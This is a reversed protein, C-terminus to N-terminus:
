RETGVALWTSYLAEAITAIMFSPQGGSAAHLLAAVLPPAGGGGGMRQALLRVEESASGERAASCASQCYTALAECAGRHSSGAAAQALPLLQALAAADLAAPLDAACAAALQLASEQWDPDLRHSSCATTLSASVAALAAGHGVAGQGVAPLLERLAALVAPHAPAPACMSELLAWAMGPEPVAVAARCAAQLLLAPSGTRSAQHLLEGVAALAEADLASGRQELAVSLCGLHHAAAEAEAPGCASGLLLSAQGVHLQLLERELRLECLARLCYDPASLEGGEASPQRGQGAYVRLLRQPWTPSHALLFGRIHSSGSLRHVCTAACRALKDDPQALLGLLSDLVAVLTAPLPSGGGGGGGRGPHVGEAHSAAALLQSGIGGLLVVLTGALKPCAALQPSTMFELCLEATHGVAQADLLGWHKPLVLNLAYLCAEARMWAEAPEGAARWHALAETAAQGVLGIVELAGAAEAAARFADAM